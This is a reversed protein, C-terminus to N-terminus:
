KLPEVKKMRYELIAALARPHQEQPGIQVVLKIRYLVRFAPDNFNKNETKLCDLKYSISLCIQFAQRNVFSFINHM